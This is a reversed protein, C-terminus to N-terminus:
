RALEDFKQWTDTGVIGDSDLGWKGQFFHVYHNENPGFDGSVDVALGERKLIGQLYRTADHEARNFSPKEMWIKPKADSFPYASFKGNEPEFPGFDASLDVLGTAPTAGTTGDPLAFGPDPDRRGANVWSQWGRIEIPQIHWPEPKPKKIFTHLGWNPADACEDWTPARHKKGGGVPVVLDVACFGTVGSAFNQDQHFSKGPAAHGPKKPQKTRFGGGVGLLGGKAEMYAFFRRAFEPHMHPEHRRRMEDLTIMQTKYANPYTTM